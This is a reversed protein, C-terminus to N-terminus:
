HHEAPAVHSEHFMNSLSAMICATHVDADNWGDNLLVPSDAVINVHRYMAVVEAVALVEQEGMAVNDYCQGTADACEVLYEGHRCGCGDAIVVLFNNEIVHVTEPVFEDFHEVVKLLTTHNAASIAVLKYNCSAEAFYLFCEIKLSKILCKMVGRKELVVM